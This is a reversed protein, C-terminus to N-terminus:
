SLINNRLYDIGEKPEVLHGLTLYKRIKNFEVGTLVQANQERGGPCATADIVCFQNIVKGSWDLEKIAKLFTLFYRAQYHPWSGVVILNRWDNIKALSIVNVAQDRTNFSKSETIIVEDDVGHEILWAKMESLSINNEGVRKEPGILENNGSILIVPAFGRQFLELTKPGRDYRDGQLWVIADSVEPKETLILKNLIELEKNM